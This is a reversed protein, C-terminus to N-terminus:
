RGTVVSMQPVVLAAVGQMPANSYTATPDFEGLLEGDEEGLEEGEDEGDFEGLELGDLEGDSPDDEEELGLELGLLEGDLEGLELGLEESDDDGLLEGLELGDLLGEADGLGVMGGPASSGISSLEVSEAWSM